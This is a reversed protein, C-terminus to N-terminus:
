PIDRSFTPITLEITEIERSPKGDMKDIFDQFMSKMDLATAVWPGNLTEISFGPFQSSFPPEETKLFRLMSM